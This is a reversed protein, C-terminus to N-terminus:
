AITSLPADAVNRLLRKTSRFRTRVSGSGLGMANVLASPEFFETPITVLTAGIPRVTPSCWSPM